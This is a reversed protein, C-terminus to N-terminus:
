AHAREMRTALVDVGVPGGGLNAAADAVVEWLYEGFAWGVLILLQDQREVLLYGPTRAVSGPRFSMVPAVAPRVDLACFRALLERCAAGALSMAVLGSTLDVVSTADDAAARVEALLNGGPEALVLAKTATVYCWWGGDSSVARGPELAAGGGADRAIQALAEASGHLELKTLHSRDAFAVSSGLRESESGGAYAVAVNWGDRVEFQAGAARALGEMPSRALARNQADVTLFGLSSV